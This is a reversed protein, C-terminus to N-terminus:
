FTVHLSVGVTEAGGMPVVLVNSEKAKARINKPFARKYGSWIRWAGVASILAGGAVVSSRSMGFGEAVKANDSIDTAWFTNYTFDLWPAVMGAFYMVRGSVSTPEVANTALLVDSTIFLTSTMVSPALAIKGLGVKDSCSKECEMVVSGFLFRNQNYDYHMYPKFEVVDYNSNFAAALGHMSEHFPIEVGFYYGPLAVFYAWKYDKVEEEVKLSKDDATASQAFFMQLLVVVALM